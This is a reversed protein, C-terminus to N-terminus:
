QVSITVRDVDKGGADRNDCILKGVEGGVDPCTITLGYDGGLPVGNWTCSSPQPGQGAKVNVAMVTGPTCTVTNATSGSICGDNTVTFNTQIQLDVTSPKQGGGRITVTKTSGPIPTFVCGTSPNCTDTTCANNDNCVIATNVCGTAPSCTDATCANNDNCVIPTHVCGTAPNCMDTTCANNDNCDADSTCGIKGMMNFNASYGGFPGEIMVAGNVCDGDWDYSMHDWVQAPNGVVCGGAWFEAPSCVAPNVGQDYSGPKWVNVIDINDNGHWLFLMHGGLEGPNVTFTYPAGTGCGPSGGPCGTYVTYTGPGYIAVDHAFWNFGLFLCPSSLTANSVQGSAAVSTKRTGDWTFRVDNTGGFAFGSSDNMTFNNNLTDVVRNTVPGMMNFNAHSGVFGGDVMPYGNIGGGTPDKSMLDWVTAAPNSGCAGTWLPSPGFVSSKKWVNVVDINRNAADTGWNLLMHVGIEDADVTFTIPNTGTACGPAKPACSAYVTYTGPGYVAVDHAQWTFGQFPCNSNITANSVQGSVAVSTKLTGDWTFLVDNAGGVVAGTSDLMTFNNTTTYIPVYCPMRTYVCGIAPDCSDATCANNDDCVVPTFVCGTAPDCSDTTCANNDNCVVATGKCIGNSCVDNSTCANNDNCPATNPTYVCGIAPDCSDDTCVNNDNCVRPTFVCNGTAPDCTDITCANNDNCVIPTHVCGTAPNCMDTTCANNDNCDADSTCGIKGMMNFNASYGGFPGEIMVAGNVCDGDWDYSMHDWVQAPNGVVCGGAWFEAPSCVAPNVGQDYSGPKWVNVIDINDNGHWLFLMHGGLEGPNVTFTYPAGTGCGPSGGPCGTYVTYTGPGYIAVDHAFWNFGLFLCPSSLTANSVQGSAAVSTKRTGDWTFRVDNTGGFAFGSSDNMTFNNNLTDVVRNTVPGMMNFNAHSGVFGGDVMPYGNIGGGTPDKSMLDWVTAAPNSGCAGTWLPSPGFVSSKKWVNVVDINRNAADTGWNLLMHVGIEDADVTFTIPNTGTACGPAKPACSAYVTYTGPGYVAVDHAQWTFGQFPCNSNITANSVQGSVAVSTKLTGDWTFLVDNAGGVVAGTSDLMTFNNTTTYVPVYPTAASAQTTNLGMCLISFAFVILRKKINM